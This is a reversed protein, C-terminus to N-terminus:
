SRCVQLEGHVRDCTRLQSADVVKPLDRYNPFEEAFCFTGARIRAKIHQLHERARRLNAETPTRDLSPRYRVGDLMFDYQIRHHGSATVGGSNSKRGM